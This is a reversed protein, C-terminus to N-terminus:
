LGVGHALQDSISKTRAKVTEGEFEVDEKVPEPAPAPTTAPTIAPSPDSSDGSGKALKVQLVDSM